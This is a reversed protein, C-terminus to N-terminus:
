PKRKKGDDKIEGAKRAEDLAQQLERIRAEVSSRTYFDEGPAQSALQYQELAAGQNSQAYYANGLAQHYRLRDRDAYVQAMRQWAEADNPSVRMLESLVATARAREGQALLADVEGYTLYRVDPFRRGAERFITQAAAYDRAKLKLRGALNLLMPHAPSRAEAEKLAATAGALEGLEMRSWALGYWTAYESNFQRNALAHQYFQIAAPVGLQLVRVKERVLLFTPTDAVMKVPLQAARDQGASIREVTVPHTRLFALAKNDNARNVRQMREFFLPMARADFQGQILTQMGIADAEREFERSFALQNQAALGGGANMAAAAIQDNHGRSAALIAVLVGAIALLQQNGQQSLMRAIHHQTVHAMEHALVSALESEGQATYILGTHVGIYGGPLAFANIQKDLMPFFQFAQGYEVTSARALRAGLQNLYATVEPDDLMDGSARIMGMIQRGLKQEAQPSLAVQATDGLDPLIPPTDAAPVFGALLSFTLTLATLPRFAIM